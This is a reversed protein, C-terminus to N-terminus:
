CLFVADPNPDIRSSDVSTSDSLLTLMSAFPSPEKSMSWSYQYPGTWRADLKKPAYIKLLVQEGVRYENNLRKEHAHHLSEDIVARRSNHIAIFDAILPIDLMMDRHFTHADPSKNMLSRNCPAQTGHMATALISDILNNADYVDNPPNVLLMNRLKKDITQHVRECIANAQPNKVTTPVL